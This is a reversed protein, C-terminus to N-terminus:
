LACEWNRCPSKTYQPDCAQSMPKCSMVHGDYCSATYCHWDQCAQGSPCMQPFLISTCGQNLGKITGSNVCGGSDTRGPLFLLCVVVGLISRLATKRSM